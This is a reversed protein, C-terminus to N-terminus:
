MQHFFLTLEARSVHILCHQWHTNKGEWYNVSEPTQHCSSLHDNECEHSHVNLRGRQPITIDFLCLHIYGPSTSVTGREDLSEAPGQTTSKNGWSERPPRHPHPSSASCLFCHQLHDRLVEPLM